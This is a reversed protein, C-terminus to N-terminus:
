LMSKSKENLMYTMSLLSDILHVNEVIIGEPVDLDVPAFNWIGKVGNASLVDCVKQASRAPICLAAIEVSNNKIYNDLSDIDRIEIGKIKIRTLKPNVDFIADIKYGFEAFNSYSALAQGINGAGIIIVKYDSSVGLINSLQGYLEEVNYGYGQQGFEGFCNLDHRIQSATFGIRKGLDMSSITEVDNKVLDKLYRHYKPLRKIVAKSIYNKNGM